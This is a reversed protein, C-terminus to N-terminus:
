DEVRTTETSSEYEDTITFSDAGFSAGYNMSWDWKASGQGALPVPDGEAFYWDHQSFSRKGLLSDGRIIVEALAPLGELSVTDGAQLTTLSTYKSLDRIRGFDKETIEVTVDAVNVPDGSHTYVFTAEVDDFSDVFEDDFQLTVKRVLTGQPSDGDTACGSIMVALLSAAVLLAKHM